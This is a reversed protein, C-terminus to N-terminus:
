LLVSKEVKSGFTKKPDSTNDCKEREALKVAEYLAELRDHIAEQPIKQGAANAHLVEQTVITAVHNDIEDPVVPDASPELQWPRDTNMYVNRLLATAGRCKMAMLRSYVASGGVQQIAQLQSPDYQGNYARMDRILEDDVSIVRRHRVAKEFRQRIYNALDTAIEVSIKSLDKSRRQAADLEDNGVVRLLGRGQHKMPDVPTSSKRSSPAAGGDFLGPVPSAARASTGLNAAQGNAGAFGIAAAASGGQGKKQSESVPSSPIAGM